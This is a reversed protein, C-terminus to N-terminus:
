INNTVIYTYVTYQHQRKNPQTLFAVNCWTNRSYPLVSDTTKFLKIGNGSAREPIIYIGLM